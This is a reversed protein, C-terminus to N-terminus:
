SKADMMAIFEDVLKPDFQIGKNKLIEAIAAERSLAKRYPRDSTMADFVDVIALIRCQIPIDEGKLNLPYGNGNWWEHHKLIWDSIHILDASAVTIRYGIETHGKMVNMEETTLIDPKFLIRNPIGIKGIDHFHAFLRMNSNKDM